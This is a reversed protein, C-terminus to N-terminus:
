RRTGEVWRWFQETPTVAALASLTMMLAGYSFLAVGPIVQALASLKVLAVLAGLMFVEPMAWPRLRTLARFAQNQATARSNRRLPFLLYLLAAIHFSPILVTTLVVLAAMPAYGQRYLAFAADLLTAHRVSGKLELSVLPFLNSVALLVCAALALAVATDISASNTRYLEARCRVCRVRVEDGVADLRHVLDCAPCVIMSAMDNGCDVGTMGHTPSRRLMIIEVARRWPEDAEHRPL